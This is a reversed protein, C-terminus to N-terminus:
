KNEYQQMFDGGQLLWIVYHEILEPEVSVVSLGSMTESKM